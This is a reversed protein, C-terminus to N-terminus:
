AKQPPTGTVPEAFGGGPEETQNLDEEERWSPPRTLGPKAPAPVFEAHEIGHYDDM